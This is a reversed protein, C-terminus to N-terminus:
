DEGLALFESVKMDFAAALSEVTPMAATRSNALRNIWVQTCNMQSALQTQNQGKKALAVKISKGVNM